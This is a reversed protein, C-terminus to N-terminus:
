RQGIWAASVIRGSEGAQLFVACKKGDQLAAGHPLELTVAKGSWMGVPTMDRVVNYYSLKRGRNEGHKIDVDVRADVIALWVTTSPAAGSGQAGGIELTLKDGATKGTITVPRVGAGTATRAIAKDIETRNSGVAQAVGNIVVQPTYVNGTALSKAYAKQRGTNRPSALTDKWGLHDWYDVPLSLAVVDQREAYSKLLADAAPCSSCGQSTFLELVPKAAAQQETPVRTETQAIAGGASLMLVGLGVLFELRPHM